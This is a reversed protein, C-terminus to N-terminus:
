LIIQEYWLGNNKLKELQGYCNGDLIVERGLLKQKM